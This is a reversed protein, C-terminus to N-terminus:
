IKEKCLAISRDAAFNLVGSTCYTLLLSKPKTAPSACIDIQFECAPFKLEKAISECRNRALQRCTHMITHM